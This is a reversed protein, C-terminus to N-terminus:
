PLHLVPQIRCSTPRIFVYYPSFAFLIVPVLAYIMRDSNFTLSIRFSAIMGLLFLLFVVLRYIVPHFGFVKYLVGAVWNVLPFETGVIGSDNGINHTHPLFINLSLDSFKRAVSARDCQAWQHPGSPPSSIHKLVGINTLALLLVLLFLLVAKLKGKGM